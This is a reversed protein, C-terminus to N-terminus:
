DDSEALEDLEEITENDESSCFVDILLCDEETRGALEGKIENESLVDAFALINDTSVTFQIKM